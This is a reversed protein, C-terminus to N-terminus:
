IEYEPAKRERGFNIYNWAREHLFYLLIKVVFDAVGAGVSLTFKGTLVLVILATSASGLV